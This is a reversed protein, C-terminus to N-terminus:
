SCLLPHPVVGSWPSPGLGKGIGTPDTHLMPVRVSEFAPPTGKLNAPSGLGIRFPTPTMKLLAYGEAQRRCWGM